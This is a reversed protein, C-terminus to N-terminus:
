RKTEVFVFSSIANRGKWLGAFSDYFSPLTALAAIETGNVFIKTPVFAM